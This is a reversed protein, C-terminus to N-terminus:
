SVAAIRLLVSDFRPPVTNSVFEAGKAGAPDGNSDGVPGRLGAWGPVGNFGPGSLGIKEGPLGSPGIEGVGPGIPPGNPGPGM